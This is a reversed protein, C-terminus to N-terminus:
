VGGLYTRLLSAGQSLQIKTEKLSRTRKLRKRLYRLNLYFSGIAKQKMAAVEGRSLTLTPMAVDNRSQDMIELDDGILDLELATRRLPTGMRPVAVNFSAFDPDLQHLFRMTEEFTEPTEQPLGLIITAVTQLGQASCLRFGEAVQAKTYDKKSAELIEESGSEVGLIVTHCGAKKMLTALKRDVVDPRSFCVWGFDYGRESMESLLRKARERQIGFTQDLFFLERVGLQSLHDLEQLVNEVPRIKWGLTSMVCFNCRYPCGFETMLTAFRSERVFPYRYRNDLFLSHEPIPLSMSEARSRAIPAADIGGSRRLTMNRVPPSSQNLGLYDPLDSTSFDHLFADVFPLAELRERRREILIDGILILKGRPVSGKGAISVRELRQALQEYFPVDEDYSVSGILGVVADPQLREVRACDSVGLREVIADILFLECSDKLRGSLYVFDIPANIYDAQSVKSCFYDRLYLHRGPPNLLVVRPKKRLGDIRNASNTVSGFSAM